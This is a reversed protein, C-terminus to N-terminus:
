SPQLAQLLKIAEAAEKVDHVRLINAGKQLAITHLVTTGNLAHEATTGLTKYITSKRSLGVLLPADIIRFLELDNLLQFNHSITKAFGFGPDIIFDIIGAQRCENLKHQMYSLVEETVNKYAALQQMTQPTGKMHMCVYPMRLAAATKIMDKDMSGGSIDNIIAAGAEAAKLAVKSYFTDVSIILGPIEDTLFRIVSIIRAAEEEASLLVSGPRTSQGGIDIIAAGDRLMQQVKHLLAAHDLQLYGKYFSDDTLNLIGMVVPTQLSLLQGKCNIAKM